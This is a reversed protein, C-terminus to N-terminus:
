KKRLSEIKKFRSNLQEPKKFDEVVFYFPFGKCVLRVMQLTSEINKSLESIMTCHDCTVKLDDLMITINLTRIFLVKFVIRIDNTTKAFVDSINVEIFDKYFNLIIFDEETFRQSLEELFTNELTECITQEMEQSCKSIHEESVYSKKLMAQLSSTSARIIKDSTEAVYERAMLGLIDYADFRISAIPTANTSLDVFNNRDKSLQM